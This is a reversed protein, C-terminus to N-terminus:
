PSELLVESDLDRIDIVRYRFNLDEHQIEASMTLPRVGVYIVQQLPRVGYRKWLLLYYELMRCAMDPDNGSQLELHYLRGDTLWAVLDLKNLQAKPLEVNIWERIPVGSLSELLLLRSSQLLTKLVTDFHM